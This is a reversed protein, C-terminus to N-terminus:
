NRALALAHGKYGHTKDYWYVEAARRNGIFHNAHHWHDTASLSHMYRTVVGVNSDVDKTTFKRETHRHGIHWEHFRAEAQLDRPAELMMIAPLDRVRSDNLHDGHQYGVLTNGILEYKRLGPSVDIITEPDNRFHERIALAITFDSQRSHNGRVLKMKIPAIERFRRLTRIKLLLGFEYVKDFRGDSDVVTGGTTSNNSNDYHLFDNGFPVIIRDVKLHQIEALLDEVANEFIEGAIKLDYDEGCEKGWALKGLHADFLDAEVIVTGNRPYVVPHFVPQSSEWRKFFSEIGDMLSKPMIRKLFLRVACMQVKHSEGANDKYQGQYFRLEMRDYTWVTTDVKGVRIADEETNVEERTKFSLTAQDGKIDMVSDDPSEKTQQEVAAGVLEKRRPNGALQECTERRRRNAYGIVTNRAYGTSRHIQTNSLGSDAMECIEAIQPPELRQGM